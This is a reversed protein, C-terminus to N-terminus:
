GSREMGKQRDTREGGGEIWGKGKGRETGEEEGKHLM